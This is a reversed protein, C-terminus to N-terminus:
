YKSQEILTDGDKWQTYQVLSSQVFLIYPPKNLGVSCEGFNGPM